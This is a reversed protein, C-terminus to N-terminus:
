LSIPFIPACSIIFPNTPVGNALRLKDLLPIIDKPSGATMLEKDFDDKVLRIKLQFSILNESMFAMTAANGLEGSVLSFKLWLLIPFSLTISIALESIIEGKVSSSNASLSILSEAALIITLIHVQHQSCPFHYHCCYYAHACVLQLCKLLFNHFCSYAFFLEHM